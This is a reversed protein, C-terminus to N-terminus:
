YRWAVIRSIKNGQGMPIIRVEAISIEALMQQIPELHESKSVLVTFWDIQPAYFRSESIIQRIFGVEGGDCWLEHGKGGFNRVPGPSKRGSLHRLKKDTAQFAEEASGYFPPNCMMLQFRDGTLLMNKFIHHLDEQLRLTIRDSPIGNKQLITQGNHIARADTDTGVFNWGFLAHGLLPYICNAGTGIDLVRIKGPEQLDKELLLDHLYHLYDARGPIPPCLYGPPIEWYSIGYHHRLLAQNLTKVALPDFFNISPVGFPNPRVFQGLAPTTATLLDFNYPDRHRNDPHLKEKISATRKTSLKM